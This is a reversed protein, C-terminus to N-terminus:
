QSVDTETDPEDPSPLDAVLGVEGITATVGEAAFGRELQARADEPSTAEIATLWPQIGPGFDVRAYYWRPCRLKQM